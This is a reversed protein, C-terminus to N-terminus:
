YNLFFYKYKDEKKSKRIYFHLDKTTSTFIEKNRKLMEIKRANKTRSINDTFFQISNKRDPELENLKVRWDPQRFSDGVKGRRKAQRCTLSPYDPCPNECDKNRNDRAIFFKGCYRCQKLIYPHSCLIYFSISLLDNLTYISYIYRYKKKSDDSILTMSCSPIKIKKLALHNSYIDEFSTITNIINDLINEINKIYDNYYKLRHKILSEKTFHYYQKNLENFDKFINTKQSENSIKNFKPNMRERKIKSYTSLLIFFTVIQIINLSFLLASKTLQEPYIKIFDASIYNYDKFFAHLIVQGMHFLFSLAVFIYGVSFIKKGLIIFFITDILFLFVSFVALFKIWIEFKQNLIICLFLNQLIFFIIYATLVKMKKINIGM